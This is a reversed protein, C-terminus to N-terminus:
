KSSSRFAQSALQRVCDAYGHDAFNQCASPTVPGAFLNAERGDVLPAADTALFDLFGLAAGPDGSSGDRVRSQNNARPLPSALARAVERPNPGEGAIDMSEPAAGDRMRVVHARAGAAAGSQQWLIPPSNRQARRMMSLSM